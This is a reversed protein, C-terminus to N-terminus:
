LGLNIEVEKLRVAAIKIQARLALIEMSFLEADNPREEANAQFQDVFGTVDSMAKWMETKYIATKLSSQFFLVELRAKTTGRPRGVKRRGEVPPETDVPEPIDLLRRDLYLAMQVISVMIRDGLGHNIKIPLSKKNVLNYIHGKSVAMCSAIDDADLMMKGPFLSQLVSLHMSM